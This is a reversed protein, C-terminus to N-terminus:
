RPGGSQTRSSGSRPPMVANIVRDRQDKFHKKFQYVVDDEDHCCDKCTYQHMPVSGYFAIPIKWGWERRFEQKCFFCTSWSFWTRYKSPVMRSNGFLCNPKEKKERKM